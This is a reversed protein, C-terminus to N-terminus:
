FEAPSNLCSAGAAAPLLQLDGVVLSIPMQVALAVQVAPPPRTLPVHEAVRAQQMRLNGTANM